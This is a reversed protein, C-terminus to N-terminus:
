FEILIGASPILPIMTAFMGFAQFTRGNVGPTEYRVNDRNLVNMVEVFLTLRKSEWNFTRNARVDLRSYLPLRLDNRTSGVFQRDGRQEWYGIAPTNSGLRLKGMLSFRNSLRYLGYVNLTHRQDFDGDFTEGTAVDRYRNM